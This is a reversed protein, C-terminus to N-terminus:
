PIMTHAIEVLVDLSDGGSLQVDVDDLVFRLLAPNAREIDTPSFPPVVLTPVGEIEVVAAGDISSSAVDREWASGPDGGAWPAEFLEIFPQRVSGGTTAPPAPFRVAIADGGPWLYADTILDANAFAHTPMVPEFGAGALVDDPPSRWATPYDSLLSPTPSPGSGLVAVLV